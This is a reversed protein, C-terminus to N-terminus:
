PFADRAAEVAEGTLAGDALEEEAVVQSPHAPNVDPMRSAGERWEGRVFPRLGMVEVATAEEVEESRAATM